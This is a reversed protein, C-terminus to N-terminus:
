VDLSISVTANYRLLNYSKPYSTSQVPEPDHGIIPKRILPTSGEPELAM